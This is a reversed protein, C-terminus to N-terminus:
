ESEYLQDEMIIIDSLLMENFPAHFIETEENDSLLLQLNNLEKLLLQRSSNKHNFLLRNALKQNMLVNSNNMNNNINM